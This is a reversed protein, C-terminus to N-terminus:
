RFRSELPGTDTFPVAAAAPAPQSLLGTVYSRDGIAMALSERISRGEWYAAAAQLYGAALWAAEECLQAPGADRWLHTFPNEWRAAFGDKPLPAPTMHSLGYGPRHLVFREAWRVLMRKGGHPSCFIRHLMYFDHFCDALAENPIDTEFVRLIAERLLQAIEALQQPTLKPVVADAPVASKGCDQRYFLTDMAVECFGHGEPVSFQGGEGCQFAVYPHLLSDAAYHTLFGLVYSRQAATVASFIITRLFRGCQEHHIRSGLEPLPCPRASSLIRYAFLPDPGHAGMEYAATDSVGIRSQTRAARAIRIHTYAEPM